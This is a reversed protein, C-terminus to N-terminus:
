RVSLVNKNEWDELLGWTIEPENEFSKMTGVYIDSSSKHNLYHELIYKTTATVNLDKATRADVWVLKGEESEQVNLHKVNSFYVYQIRIESEKIRLVIYKLELGSMDGVTLGTEEEVERLCAERPNNMEQQEMHGGIPVVMGAVFSNNNPKEMMLLKDEHILFAVSMQRLTIM